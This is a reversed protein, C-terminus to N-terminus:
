KGHFLQFCTNIYKSSKCKSCTHRFNEKCIVCKCVKRSEPYHGGKDIIIENPIIAKSKPLSRASTVQISWLLLISVIHLSEQEQVSGAKM